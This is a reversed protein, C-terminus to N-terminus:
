LECQINFSISIPKQFMENLSLLEPIALKVREALVDIYAEVERLISENEENIKM